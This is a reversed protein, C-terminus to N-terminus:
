RSKTSKMVFLRNISLKRFIHFNLQNLSLVNDEPGRILINSYKSLEKSSKFRMQKFVNTVM